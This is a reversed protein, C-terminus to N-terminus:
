RYHLSFVQNEGQGGEFIACLLFFEKKGVSM